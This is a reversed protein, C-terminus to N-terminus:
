NCAPHKGITSQVFQRVGGVCDAAGAAAELHDEVHAEAEAGGRSSGRSPGGRGRGRSKRRGICSEGHGVRGITGVADSDDDNSGSDLAMVKSGSSNMSDDSSGEDEDGSDIEMESYSEMDSLMMLTENTNMLAAMTLVYWMCNNSGKCTVMAARLTIM